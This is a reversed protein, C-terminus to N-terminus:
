LYKLKKFLTISAPVLKLKDLELLKFWDVKVFDDHPQASIEAHDKDIVVKYVNFKMKCLVKEGTDKLVKEATGTNQNDVLEIEYKSVDVGVEELVERQLAKIFDEGDDTGGGPLHWCDAYVGGKAFDKKGLLLYDDKSIILASVINRKITRM